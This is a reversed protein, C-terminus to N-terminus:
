KGKCNYKKGNYFKKLNKKIERGKEIQDRGVKKREARLADIKGALLRHNKDLKIIKRSDIQYGKNKAAEEVKKANERIFKSPRFASGL